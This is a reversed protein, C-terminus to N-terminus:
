CGLLQFGKDPEAAEAATPHGFVETVFVTSLGNLDGEHFGIGIETMDASLINARHPPSDMLMWHLHDVTTQDVAITTQATPGSWRSTYAINEAWGAMDYGATEIRDGPSSGSVGTHSFTDAQDMWASHNRAAAVLEADFVLAALGVEARSANVLQLLHNELDSTAM